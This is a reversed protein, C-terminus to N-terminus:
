RRTDSVKVNNYTTEQKNIVSDFLIQAMEEDSYQEKHSYKSTISITENM